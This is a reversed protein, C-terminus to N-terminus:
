AFENAVMASRDAVNPVAEMASRHAVKPDAVKPDAVKPDAVKPNAVKSAFRDKAPYRTDSLVIPSIYFNQGERESGRRFEKTSASKLTFRQV